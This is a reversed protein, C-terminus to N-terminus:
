GRNAPDRGDFIFGTQEEFDVQYWRNDGEITEGTITGTVTLRGDVYGLIACITSPCERVAAEGGQLFFEASPMPTLTDWRVAYTPTVVVVTQPGCGTSMPLLAVVFVLILAYQRPKSM